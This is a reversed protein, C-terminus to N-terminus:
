RLCRHVPVSSTTPKTSTTCACGNSKFRFSQSFGLYRTSRPRSKYSPRCSPPYLPILPFHLLEPRAEHNNYHPNQHYITTTAINYRHRFLFLNSQIRSFNNYLTVVLLVFSYKFHLTCCPKIRMPLHRYRAGGISLTQSSRVQLKSSNIFGSHSCRTVEPYSCASCCHQFDQM